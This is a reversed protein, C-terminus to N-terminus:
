PYYGRLTKADLGPRNLRVDITRFDQSDLTNTSQYALYYRSRLERQIERYVGELQDIDEILFLRGGTEAALRELKRRADRQKRPLDLGISYVAVGARQAYELTDEFTFRSHEDQGDSLLVLARQGKIGNFYYLAFIVSDYLATGREAKLGALGGALEGLNNTFKTALNPHDNFTILSARDKPTIAQQFFKLAALQAAEIREKMSASVDILIGAHIPLNAVHDFRLLSQPAGDERVTFDSETLGEVPRQSADLVGVFLEVFQIDVEELYEPANVFVLEETSNGDPQYAVARVYAVQEVPPLLIPHIWPPQYLTAVRTENLYFEVREVAKDEPVQVDAEARLSNRYTVGKRPELLRISFRHAGSNLIMEDRALERGSSALAVATLTRMRPLSGLDFEVSWPPDRKKLVQKNDISFVVEAIDSGSSLTDIRLMGTHLEGQPPVIRLATEGSAIAANAEALLRATEPDSPPRSVATEILPVSIPQATRFFTNANIDELRLILTYEGARLYREFVLPVTDGALSDLPHNFAYRFSDFLKDNRLVEGILQLNYSQHGALDAVALESRKIALLGQVVTRAKYRGPFELSLKADFAAADEPIDTTYSNFTSVWEGSPGEPKKTLDAVVSSFGLVGQAQAYRIATSIAATEEQDCGGSSDFFFRGGGSLSSRQLEDVGDTPQWLIYKGLGGRQV